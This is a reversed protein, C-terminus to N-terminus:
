RAAFQALLLRGLATLGPNQFTPLPDSSIDLTINEGEGSSTDM